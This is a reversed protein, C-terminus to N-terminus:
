FLGFGDPDHATFRVPVRASSWGVAQPTHKLLCRVLLCLLTTRARPIRPRLQSVALRLCRRLSMLPLFLTHARTLFANQTHTIHTRARMHPLCASMQKRALSTHTHTHTPTHTHTRTFFFSPVRFSAPMCVCVPQVFTCLNLLWVCLCVCLPCSVCVCVCVCACVDRM